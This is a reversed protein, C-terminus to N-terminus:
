SSRHGDRSVIDIILCVILAVLWSNWAHVPPTDHLLWVILWIVTLM